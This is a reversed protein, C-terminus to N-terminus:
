TDRFDKLELSGFPFEGDEEVRLRCSEHLKRARCIIGDDVWNGCGSFSTM